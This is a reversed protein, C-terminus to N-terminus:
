EERMARSLYDTIPKLLYEIPTREGTQIFVEVPMGAVLEQGDLKAIEGEGLMVEARYFSRRTDQDVLVDPSVKVVSGHLVPTTRTNFASMRLVAEQGAHVTDIHTPDVEADIVLATETPVIHLIPEAPRVVSKLAHVAMDLVIGGVPARIDLRSLRDRLAIRREELELERVGLDRLQGIAEERRGAGLRLVEIEIESNQGKLRAAEAVMRGQEGELRAADRELALVRSAQALGKELLQRQAALEEAILVQQRELSAIQAELGGIQEQIQVQRERMVEIERDLTKRRAEFLARQGDVLSQVDADSGAADLLAPDFTIRERDAQEAELRGRRAMVEYLQSELVAMESRLITGDLRILVDGAEVRNGERVLIEGVVGGDPHQVVQRGNEVSVRGSAIVAGDLSAMAAWGGLGVGLLLVSAIGLTIYGGASWGDSRRPDSM